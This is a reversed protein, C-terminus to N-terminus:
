PLYPLPAASPFLLVASRLVVHQCKPLAAGVQVCLCLSLHVFFCSFLHVSSLSVSANIYHFCMKGFALDRKFSGRIRHKVIKFPLFFSM